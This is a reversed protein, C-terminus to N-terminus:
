LYNMCAFRINEQQKRESPKPVIEDQESPFATSRVVRTRSAASDTLSNDQSLIIIPLCCSRRAPKTALGNM